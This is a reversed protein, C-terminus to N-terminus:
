FSHAGWSVRFVNEAVYKPDTSTFILSLKPFIFIFNIKTVLFFKAREYYPKDYQDHNSIVNGFV